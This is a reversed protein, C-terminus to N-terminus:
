SEGRAFMAARNLNTIQTGADAADLTLGCVTHGNPTRGAIIINTTEQGSRWAKIGVRGNCATIFSLAGRVQIQDYQSLDRHKMRSM